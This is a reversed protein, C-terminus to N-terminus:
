APCPGFNNIVNLLDDINVINNGFTGDGNDPASDCPGGAAGFSNIVELLDDINTVDNGFTGDGNDPSCDTPCPTGLPMGEPGDVSATLTSPGTGGKYLGIESDAAVPGSDADFSFTYTTGWRLANANQDSAFSDTSWEIFGGSTDVSWDTGSINDNWDSSGTTKNVRDGSHYHVDHFDINSLTVGEGVPVRFSQGGRDSNLNHVAYVYTWTGDGNDTVKYGVHFRGGNGLGDENETVPVIVVSPDAEQWGYIAPTFPRMSAQGSSPQGNFGVGFISTNTVSVWRYSANNYRNALPEDHTVLHIEALYTAGAQILDRDVLVRGALVNGNSVNPGDPTLFVEDHVRNAGEGQPNIEWRPGIGFQDGNLGAWYTDACGIGLTNCNTSQCAGCTFESVACFSHKPWGTAIQEFRGQYIRYLAPSIIPNRANNPTDIWEAQQDGINCSTNAIAFSSFTTGSVTAAGYYDFDDSGSGFSTLGLRSPYIDPGISGAMVGAGASTLCLASLIHFLRARTLKKM